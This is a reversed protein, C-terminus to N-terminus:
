PQEPPAPVTLTVTVGEGPRSHVTVAGNVLRTREKISVLGLGGMASADMGAGRDSVVLRITNADCTLVVEAEGVRSHKISNQLAEQAVRYVCLAM